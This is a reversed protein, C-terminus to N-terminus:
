DARLLTHQDVYLWGAWGILLLLGFLMTRVFPKTHTPEQATKLSILHLSPSQDVGFVPIVAYHDYKDGFTLLETKALKKRYESERILLTIPQSIQVAQKLSRIDADYDRRGVYFQLDPWHRLRLTFGKLTSKNKTELVRDVRDSISLLRDPSKATSNHAVYAFFLNASIVLAPGIFGWRFRNRETLTIVKRRPSVQGYQAFVDKLYDYENFKNSRIIFWTDLM